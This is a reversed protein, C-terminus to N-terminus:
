FIINNINIIIFEFSIISLVYTIMQNIHPYHTHLMPAAHLCCAYLTCAVHMGCWEAHGLVQRKVRSYYFVLIEQYVARVFM